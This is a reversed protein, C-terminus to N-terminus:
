ANPTFHYDKIKLFLITAVGFIKEPTIEFLANVRM